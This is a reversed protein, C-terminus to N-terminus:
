PLPPPIIHVLAYIFYVTITYEIAKQEYSLPCFPEAKDEGEKKERELGKTSIQMFCCLLYSAM